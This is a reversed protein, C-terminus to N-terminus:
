LGNLLEYLKQKAFYLPREESPKIQMSIHLLIRDIKEIGTPATLCRPFDLQLIGTHERHRNVAAQFFWGLDFLESPTLNKITDKIEM